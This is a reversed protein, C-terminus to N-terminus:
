FVIKKGRINVGLILGVATMNTLMSSGGYSVFPLPIGTVPMLGICMGINEFIHFLWMATIGAVILTGNLERAGAGIVLARLLLCGYLIILLGAGIFGLEEGIVAFIFDTHREPLFNLQVQTGQYLGTGRWGGAGIATLSQITNWGAGRGGQGDQYPNIFVTLRNFQYNGLPLWMGSHFHLFLLLAIIAVLGSILGSLLRFNAGAMLMMIVTIVIYVLATGLDPQAMILAFPIGMYVFCPLLQVLTNLEGKRRSLFDAFALILLIKTFEAPQMPPLGGIAIWGTTGRVQTGFFLVIVLILLSAGYLYRSYKELQTYDFRIIIGAAIIGLLLFLAQKKLYFYPDSALGRSASSLVLLGFVLIITLIVLFYKDALKLRKLNLKYVGWNILHPLL